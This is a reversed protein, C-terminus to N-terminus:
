TLFPCVLPLKSGSMLEGAQTTLETVVSGAPSLDESWKSSSRKHKQNDSHNVSATLDKQSEGDLLLSCDQMVEM